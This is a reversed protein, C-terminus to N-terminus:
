SLEPERCALIINLEAQEGASDTAYLHGITSLGSSGGRQVKDAANVRANQIAQFEKWEARFWELSDAVTDGACIRRLTAVTL